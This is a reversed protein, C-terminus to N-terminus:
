VLVLRIWDFGRHFLQQTWTANRRENSQRESGIDDPIVKKPLVFVSACM